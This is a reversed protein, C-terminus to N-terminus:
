TAARWLFPKADGRLYLPHHPFGSTVKLAYLDRGRNIRELTRETIIRGARWPVDGCAVVVMESSAVVEDVHRDNDPGVPNDALPLVDPSVSRFAFVNVVTFGAFGWARAYGILKRITHDDVSEDATSPNKMLVTFRRTGANLTRWLRYRYRRDESLVAGRTGDILSLSTM